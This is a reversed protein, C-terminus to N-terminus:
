KGAKPAKMLGILDLLSFENFADDPCGPDDRRRLVLYMEILIDDVTVRGGDVTLIKEIVRDGPEPARSGVSQMVYRHLDMFEADFKSALYRREPRSFSMLDDYSIEM